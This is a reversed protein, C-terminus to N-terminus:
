TETSAFLSPKEYNEEAFALWDALEAEHNEYIVPPAKGDNAADYRAEWRKNWKWLLLEMRDTDEEPLPDPKLRYRRCLESSTLYHGEPLTKEFAKLDKREDENLLKNLFARAVYPRM